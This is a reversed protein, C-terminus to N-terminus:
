HWIADYFKTLMQELLPMDGSPVLGNVWQPRTVGYPLLSRPWWQSLYHSTAQRCWAMVQVLTSKDDTLYLSTWRLALESSIGWGNIVSIIQFIQYRFHCDFKGPVLSNVSGSSVLWWHPGQVIVTMWRLPIECFISFVDKCSILKFILLMFGCKGPDLSNSQCMGQFKLKLSLICSFVLMHMSIPRMTHELFCKVMFTDTQLFKMIGQLSLLAMHNWICQLAM